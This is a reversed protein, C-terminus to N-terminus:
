TIKQVFKKQNFILHKPNDNLIINKKGTRGKKGM